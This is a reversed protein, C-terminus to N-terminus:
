RPKKMNHRITESDRGQAIPLRSIRVSYWGDPKGPHKGKLALYEDHWDQYMAQTALKRAERKSTDPTYAKGSESPVTNLLEDIRPHDLELAEGSFFLVEALPVVQRNIELALPQVGVSVWRRGGKGKLMGLRYSASAKHFDPKADLGLLGAVVGSFQRTSAQWQQLHELPVAIRGMQSQRDPDDCVVYARQADETLYVPMFCQQECGTCTLSKAQVGKALLGLDIFAKLVGQQWQQVEDWALYQQKDSANVHGILAELAQNHDLM